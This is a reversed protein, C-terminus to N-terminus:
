IKTTKTIVGEMARRKKKNNNKRTPKQKGWVYGRPLSKRTRNLKKQRDVDGNANNRRM